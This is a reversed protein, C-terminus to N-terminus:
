ICCLLGLTGPFLQAVGTMDTIATISPMWRDELAELEPHFRRATRSDGKRIRLANMDPDETSPQCANIKKTEVLRVDGLQSPSM